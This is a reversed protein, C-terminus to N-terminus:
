LDTIIIKMMETPLWAINTHDNLLNLVLSSTSLM